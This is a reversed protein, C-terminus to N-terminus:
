SFFQLLNNVYKPRDISFEMYDGSIPHNFGITKAFLAQGDRYNKLKKPGYVPDGIIPYGIFKLHVRIQHTRGTILQCQLITARSRREIVNFRTEAERGGDTLVAMKLRNKPDRGIPAKIIGTDNALSGYVLAEYLRTVTRAQFQEKLKAHAEDTKAVVILGSTYQDLRHVIGPRDPGALTSLNKTYYMLANVLTGSRTKETPHVIMGQPKNVLIIAGDEYVIELEIKEAEIPALSVKELAQYTVQDQAKVIYKPKKLQDNVQVREEKIMAQAEQRSQAAGQEYLWKDLRIGSTEAQAIITNM